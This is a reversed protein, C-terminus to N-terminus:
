IDTLSGNTMVGLLEVEVVLGQGTPDAGGEKVKTTAWDIAALSYHRM